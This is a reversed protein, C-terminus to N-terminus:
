RTEEYLKKVLDEAEGAIKFVRTWKGDVKEWNGDIIGLDFLKDISKSITSRSVDAELETVLRSFWVPENKLNHEYIAVCIRLDKSLIEKSVM